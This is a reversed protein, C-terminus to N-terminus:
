FGEKEEMQRINPTLKLWLKSGRYYPIKKAELETKPKPLHFQQLRQNRTTRNQKKVMEGGGKKKELCADPEAPPM